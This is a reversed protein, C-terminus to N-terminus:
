NKKVNYANKTVQGTDMAKDPFLYKRHINIFGNSL